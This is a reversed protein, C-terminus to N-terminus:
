PWGGGGNGGMVALGPVRPFSIAGRHRLGRECWGWFWVGVSLGCSARQTAERTGPMPPLEWGMLVCGAALGRGEVAM